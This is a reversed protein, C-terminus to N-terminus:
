GIPSFLLVFIFTYQFIVALYTYVFQFFRVFVFDRTGVLKQGVIVIQIKNIIPTTQTILGLPRTKDSM